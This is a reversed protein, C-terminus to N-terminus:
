NTDDATNGGVNKNVLRVTVEALCQQWRRKLEGGERYVTDIRKYLETELMALSGSGNEPLSPLALQEECFAIFRLTRIAAGARVTRIRDALHRYYSADNVEKGDKMNQADHSNSESSVGHASLGSDGTKRTNKLQIVIELLAQAALESADPEATMPARAIGKVGLPQPEQREKKGFIKGFLKMPM